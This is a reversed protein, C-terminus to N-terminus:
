SYMDLYEPLFYEKDKLILKNDIRIFKNRIALKDKLFIHCTYEDIIIYDNEFYIETNGCDIIEEMELTVIKKNLFDNFDYAIYEYTGGWFCGLVILTKQNNSIFCESWCFESKNIDLNDFIEKTECNIFIQSTYTRGTQLWEQGNIILWSYNFVCYNRDIQSIIINDKTYLTGRTYNWCNLKTKFTEIILKFKGFPSIINKEEIKNEITYFNETM